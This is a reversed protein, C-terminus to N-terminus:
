ELCMEELRTVIEKISEYYVALRHYTIDSPDGHAINNRHSLVSDLANKREGKTYSELEKRWEGDFRGVTTLLRETNLNNRKVSGSVYKTVTPAARSETHEILIEEVALEV